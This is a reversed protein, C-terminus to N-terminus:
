EEVYQFRPISRGEIMVNGTFMDYPRVWYQAPTADEFKRYMVLPELSESHRAVGIIEYTDGKYHRYKGPKLYPAPQLDKHNIM